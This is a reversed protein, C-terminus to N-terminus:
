CRPQLPDLHRSLASGPPPGRNKQLPSVFLHDRRLVPPPPFSVRRPLHGPPYSFFSRSRM